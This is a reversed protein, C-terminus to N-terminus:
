EIVEDARALIEPPITLGLLGATKLNIILFYKSTREVPTDAPKAGKLIKDAIVACRRFMDDLDPGYSLLGRAETHERFPFISPLRHELALEALRARHQLVLASGLGLVAEAGQDRMGEFAADFEDAAAVPSSHLDVGLSASAERLAELVARNSSVWPNWLVAIRRTGPITHTLLEVSKISLESQLNSVGTMSGEPRALSAVHGAGVPDYHACFVIPITRSARQAAEANASTSAVILAVNDQVAEAAQALVRSQESGSFRYAVAINQGDIWGLERMRERFAVVTSSSPDNGLYAIRPIKEASQASASLPAMLLGLVAICRGLTRGTM